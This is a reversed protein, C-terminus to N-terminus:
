VCAVCVVRRVCTYGLTPSLILFLFEVRELYNVLQTLTLKVRILFGGWSGGIFFFIIIFDAETHSHTLLSDFSVDCENGGQYVPARLACCCLLGVFSFKKGM